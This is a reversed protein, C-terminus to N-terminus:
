KKFYQYFGFESTLGAVAIVPDRFRDATAASLPYGFIFVINLPTWNCSQKWVSKIVKQRWQL